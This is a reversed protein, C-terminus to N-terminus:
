KSKLWAGIEGWNALYTVGNEKLSVSPTKKGHTIMIVSLGAEKAAIKGAESDEIAVAEEPKVGLKKLAIQYMAPNPKAKEVDESTVIVSFAKDVKLPELCIKVLAHTGSTVIGLKLQKKLSDEIFQKAGPFLETGEFGQVMLISIYMNALEQHSGKINHKEKLIDVIEDISPGILTNFEERTGKKNYHELFKKYVLFLAPVSDVLTGDLDVLVAKIM